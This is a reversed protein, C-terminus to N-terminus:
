EGIINKNYKEIYKPLNNIWINFDNINDFSYLKYEEKTYRKFKLNLFNEIFRQGDLTQGESCMNLFTIGKKLLYQLKENLGELLLGLVARDNRHEFDIAIASFLLYYLNNDKYSELTDENLETDNLENQMFKDYQLKNLPLITIEAIIRDLTIDRIFIHIDPNKNDWKIVQDINAITNSNFYYNEINWVDQFDKLNHTYEIKYKM